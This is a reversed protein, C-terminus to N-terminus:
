YSIMGGGRKSIKRTGGAWVLRDRKAGDVLASRGETITYNYYWTVNTADSVSSNIEGLHVLANGTDPAITCLQNTYSGAYWIRNLLEDVTENAEFLYGCRLMTHCTLRM